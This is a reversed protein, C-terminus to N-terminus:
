SRASRTPPNSVNRRATTALIGAQATNAIRDIAKPRGETALSEVRVAAEKTHRLISLARVREAASRWGLDAGRAFALQRRAPPRTDNYHALWADVDAQVCGGM